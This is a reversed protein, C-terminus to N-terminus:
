AIKRRSAFILLQMLCIHFRFCRCELQLRKIESLSTSIRQRLSEQTAEIKAKGQQELTNAKLQEARLKDEANKLGERSTRYLDQQEQIAGNLFGKYEELKGKLKELESSQNGLESSKADLQSQIADCRDTLQEIQKNREELDAVHQKIRLEQGDLAEVFQDEMAIVEQKRKRENIVFNNMIDAYHMHVGQEAKKENRRRNSISAKTKRVASTERYVPRSGQAPTAKRATNSPYLTPQHGRQPTSIHQQMDKDRLPRTLGSDQTQHRQHSNGNSRISPSRRDSDEQPESPVRKKHSSSPLHSRNDGPMNDKTMSRQDRMPGSVSMRLQSLLVPNKRSPTRTSPREKFPTPAPPRRIPESDEFTKKFAPLDATLSHSSEFKSKDNDMSPSDDMVQPQNLATKCSKTPDISSTLFVQQRLEPPIHNNQGVRGQKIQTSHHGPLQTAPIPQMRQGTFQGMRYPAAAAFQFGENIKEEPELPMNPYSFGNERTLGLSELTEDRSNDHSTTEQSEPLPKMANAMIDSDQPKAEHRSFSPLCAQAEPSVSAMRVADVPSPGM